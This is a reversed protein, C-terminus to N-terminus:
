RMASMPGRDYLEDGNRDSRAVVVRAAVVSASDAVVGPLDRCTATGSYGNAGIPTGSPRKSLLFVGSRRRARADSVPPAPVPAISHRPCLAATGEAFVPIARCKTQPPRFLVGRGSCHSPHAAPPWVIVDTM